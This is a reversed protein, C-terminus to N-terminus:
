AAMQGDFGERQRERELAAIKQRLIRKEDIIDLHDPSILNVSELDHLCDKLAELLGPEHFHRMKARGVTSIGLDCFRSSVCYQTRRCYCHVEHRSPIIATWFDLLFAGARASAKPKSKATRLEGQAFGFPGVASSL